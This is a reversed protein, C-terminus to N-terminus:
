FIEPSPLDVSPEHEAMEGEAPEGHVSVEIRGIPWGIGGYVREDTRDQAADVLAEPAVAGENRAIRGVVQDIVRLDFRGRREQDMIRVSGLVAGDDIGHLSM